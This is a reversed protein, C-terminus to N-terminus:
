DLLAYDLISVISAEQPGVIDNLRHQAGNDFLITVERNPWSDSVFSNPDRKSTESVVLYLELYRLMPTLKYKIRM